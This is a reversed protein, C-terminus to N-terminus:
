GSGRAALQKLHRELLSSPSTLSIRAASRASSARLSWQSRAERSRPRAMAAMQASETAVLEAGDEENRAQGPSRARARPRVLSGIRRISGLIVLSPARSRRNGFTVLLGAPPRVRALRAANGTDNLHLVGAAASMRFVAHRASISREGACSHDNTSPPTTTM